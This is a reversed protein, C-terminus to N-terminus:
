KEEREKFIDNQGKQGKQGKKAKILRQFMWEDHSNGRFHFFTVDEMAFDIDGQIKKEGWVSTYGQATKGGKPRM